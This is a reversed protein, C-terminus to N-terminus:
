ILDYYYYYYYHQALDVSLVWKFIPSFFHEPCLVQVSLYHKYRSHCFHPKRKSISRTHLHCKRIESFFLVVKIHLEGTEGIKLQASAVRCCCFNLCFFFTPLFFFWIFATGQARSKILTVFWICTNSYM